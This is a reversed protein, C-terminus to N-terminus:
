LYVLTLTASGDLEILQGAPLASNRNITPVVTLNGTVTTVTAPTANTATAAGRVFSYTMDPTMYARAIADFQWSNRDASYIVHSNATGDATVVGGQFGFMVGGINAQGGNGNATTGLGYVYRDGLAAASSAWATAALSAKTVKSSARNDVVQLGVRAPGECTINVGVTREAFRTGDAALTNFGQSGFDVVGNGDLVISCAPPTIRGTIRLEATTAAQASAGVTVAATAGLLVLLHKISLKM